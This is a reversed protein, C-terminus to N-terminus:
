YIRKRRTFPKYKEKKWLIRGRKEEKHKREGKKSAIRLLLM